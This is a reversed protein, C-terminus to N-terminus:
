EKLFASTLMVAKKFATPQGKVTAFTHIAGPFDVHDVSKGLKKLRSTFEKGQDYLIDRQASIMLVPPLNKLDADYAHAPSVNPNKISSETPKSGFL